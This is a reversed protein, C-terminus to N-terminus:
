FDVDFDGPKGNYGTILDSNFINRNHQHKARLKEKQKKSLKQNVFIDNTDDISSDVSPAIDEVSKTDFNTAENDIAVQTIKLSDFSTSYPM